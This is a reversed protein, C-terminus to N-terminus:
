TFLMCPTAGTSARLFNHCLVSMYQIVWKKLVDLSSMSLCVNRWMLTSRLLVPSSKSIWNILTCNAPNSILSFKRGLYRGAGTRLFGSSGDPWAVIGATLLALGADAALVGKSRPMEPSHSHTPPKTQPTISVLHVHPIYIQELILTFFLLARSNCCCSSSSSGTIGWDNALCARVFTGVFLFALM